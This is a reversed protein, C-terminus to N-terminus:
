KINSNKTAAVIMRRLGYEELKNGKFSISIIQYDPNESLVDGLYEGAKSQLGNKDLNLERM